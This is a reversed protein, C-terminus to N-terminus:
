LIKERKDGLIGRKHEDKLDKRELIENIEEMCNDMAIEHPFDSAFMFPEPGLREVAYALVKENGECAVFVNGSRFYDLPAKKLNLGGYEM